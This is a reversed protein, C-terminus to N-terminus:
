SKGQDVAHSVVARILDPSALTKMQCPNEKLLQGLWIKTEGRYPPLFHVKRRKSLATRVVEELKVSHGTNSIGCKLALDKVAPQPGMWIIDDMDFDNGFIWEKGSDFDILGALGPIDHGFFYLFNSDQRFHYANDPYNVPAESNGPFLALGTRLKKQLEERRRTYVESKFMEIIIIINRDSVNVIIEALVKLSRDGTMLEPFFSFLLSHGTFQLIDM